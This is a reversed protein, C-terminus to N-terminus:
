ANRQHARRRYAMFTLDDPKSPQGEEASQMRRHCDEALTRMVRRVPGKRIREVIEDTHLNDFLGDSALLLTDYRAMEITSGVEIRMDATGIVNSVVHREAHHMAETEDLLGAEMAYGVPSHSITQLKIKGRQGVLLIMSDGVHYPRVSHNRIEAVAMTTAAGVGLESVTRNANEIGNLIAARLSPDDSPAERISAILERIALCSAQEGAPSGGLGDAVVLIGAEGNVHILAAADENPTEKDRCRATFVGAHGGSLALIEGQPMDAQFFLQTDM